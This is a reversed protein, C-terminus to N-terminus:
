LAESVDFSVGRKTWWLRPTTIWFVFKSILQRSHEMDTRKVIGYPMTIAKSLFYSVEKQNPQWTLTHFRKKLENCESTTRLKMFNDGTIIVLNFKILLMFRYLIRIIIALELSFNPTM